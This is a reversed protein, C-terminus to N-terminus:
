DLKMGGLGWWGWFGVWVFLVRDHFDELTHHGGLADRAQLEVIPGPDRLAQSTRPAPRFLRHHLHQPVVGRPAHPAPITHTYIYINHISPHLPECVWVWLCVCGVGV